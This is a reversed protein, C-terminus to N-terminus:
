SKVDKGKLISWGLFMIILIGFIAFFWPYWAIWLIFWGFVLWVVNALNQLIKMPAASANSDIQTLKNKLAFTKNYSELFVAVSLSMCIAYWVSNALALVLLVPFNLKWPEWIAFFAMIILSIGSIALWLNAIRYVWVKDALRWFPDQLAFAPIAIIWLLIYSWGSKVQDLFELLFTSAFTDWFGFILVMIFSWYVILSSSKAYILTKFIDIFAIHTERVLDWIPLMQSKLTLPKMFIYKTSWLVEKLEVSKVSQVIADKKETFGDTLDSKAKNLWNKDFYVKYKKIDALNIIKDKSDFFKLSVFAIAVVIFLIYIVILKPSYSLIVWSLVLWFLSGIGFFLNKQAIIKKYQSPNAESLIYSLFTIDNIERNFWYCVAAWLLLLWNTVDWLFFHATAWLLEIWELTWAVEWALFDTTWFIFNAFIVMAFMQAIAWFWLLTKSKFYSQLISIPVDFLFAFFNWLWLFIWVLLLSGLKFTFFYVAAFHFLMTSFSMLGVAINLNFIKNPDLWDDISIFATKEQKTSM